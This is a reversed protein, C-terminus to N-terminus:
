RAPAATATDAAIGVRRFSAISTAISFVTLALFGVPYGIGFANDDPDGLVTLFTAVFGVAGIAAIVGTWRAFVATRLIIFASATLFAAFGVSALLFPGASAETISRAVIANTDSGPISAAGILGVAMVIGSIGAIGGAFAIHALRTFGRAAREALGYAGRLFGAFHLFEYGALLTLLMSAKNNSENDVAWKVWVRDPATYDPTDGGSLLFGVFLLVGFAAGSLALLRQWSLPFPDGGTRGPTMPESTM